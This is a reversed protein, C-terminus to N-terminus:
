SNIASVSGLKIADIQGFCILNNLYGYLLENYANKLHYPKISAIKYIKKLQEVKFRQLMKVSLFSIFTGQNEASFLNRFNIWSTSLRVHKCSVNGVRTGM